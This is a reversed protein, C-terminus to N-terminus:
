GDAKKIESVKYTGNEPNNARTNDSHFYAAVEIIKGAASPYDGIGPFRWWCVLRFRITVGTSFGLARVIKRGFKLIGTSAVIYEPVSKGYWTVSSVFDEARDLYPM